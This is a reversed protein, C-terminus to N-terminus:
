RKPLFSAELGLHTDARRELFALLMCQGMPAASCTAVPSIDLNTRGPLKSQYFDMAWFVLPWCSKATALSTNLPPTFYAQVHARDCYTSYRNGMYACISRLVTYACLALGSAGCHM